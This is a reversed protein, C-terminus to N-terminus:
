NDDKYKKLRKDVWGKRSDHTYYWTEDVYIISLYNKKTERTYIM